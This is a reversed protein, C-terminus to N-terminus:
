DDITLTTVMNVKNGRNISILIHKKGLSKNKKVIKIFEKLSRIPMQNVKNIVDGKKLGSVNSKINDVFGVILVGSIDKSIKYKDRFRQNLEALKFDLFEEYKVLDNKDSKSLDKKKDTELETIKTILTKRLLKGNVKRLVVIKVKKNIKTSAVIRPLQYMDKIVKNDFEIILDDIMLGARSAPSDEAVGVIYAGKPSDLALAEAMASTVYQINVGLWGRVVYGKDQLQKIIPLATQSPIAFGIGINGGSNSFIATNIGILEGKTNFMPGGSNGRNIAADTQIFDTNSGDSINRGRASIIGATVTGGLGFPNGIAIVWDGVELFDSNGFNVYPLKHEVDIKLLAIDSKKDIGIIKANFVSGNDLKIDIADAKEVVHTNTIIYGSDSIIFGSGLSTVLNKGEPRNLNKDLFEKFFFEFPSNKPLQPLLSELSDKTGKVRQTTSINVVTPILKKIIKSFSPYGLACVDSKNEAFVKNSFSLLLFIAITCYFQRM